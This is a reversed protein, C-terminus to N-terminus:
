RACPLVAEVLTGRGRGRRGVAAARRPWGTSWGPWGRAPARRAGRRLRRRQDAVHVARGPARGVGGRERRERAQRRQGAGRERRLLRHHRRRRAGRGRGARACRSRCRRRRAVPHAPGLGSDLDLPRLGRAIARLEAVATGLEAVAQDLLGNVDFGPDGLHRQALRVAMGLSVLRQQAGDHLDRELRRRERYGAHLLRARSEAVERLAETLELRSRIVEVILGVDAAIERLLERSAETREPLLSGSRPTASTCRCRGGTASRSRRRRWTSWAPGARAARLGAATPIACRAACPRRWTRRDPGATTSRPHAAPGARRSRGAAVPVAARGGAAAAAHAVAGAGGGIRGDRHGRRGGLGPRAARGRRRDGHHLRGAARGLGARVDRRRERRPRRRVPRPAAVRDDNGDAAGAPHARPRDDGPRRGRLDPLVGLVAAPHAAPVGGGARVLAAPRAAGPGDARRYRVIMAAAAAVLLALFMPLLAFAVPVLWDPAPGFPLPVDQYPADFGAPDMTALTAFAAPVVLLGVAVVRWRPGPLRGDPFLLLVFAAPVYLLMWSGSSLGVLVGSVPLAGPHAAVAAAYLDGFGIVLPVAGTLCLVPAIRAHPRRVAILLGLVISPLLM